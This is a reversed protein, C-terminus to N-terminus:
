KETKEPKEAVFKKIRYSGSNDKLWKKMADFLQNQNANPPAQWGEQPTPNILYFMNLANVGTEGDTKTWDADAMAQMILKSEDADIEVQKGGGLKPQRYHTLLLNAALLREGADKSKLGKQADDYAKACKTVLKSYKEYEGTNKNVADAPNVLVYFTETPHKILFFCGEQDKSLSVQFGGRPGRRPDIPVNGNNIWAVQVHTLGKADMFGDAIKVTAVNYEMDGNQGPIHSKAKVTKDSISEVKGLVVADSMAVQGLAPLQTPPAVPVARLAYGAAACVVIGGLALAGVLRSQMLFIEEAPEFYINADISVIV